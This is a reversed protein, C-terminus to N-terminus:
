KDRMISQYLIFRIQGSVSRMQKEAERELVKHLKEDIRISVQKEYM